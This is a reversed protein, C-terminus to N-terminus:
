AYVWVISATKKFVNYESFSVQVYAVSPKCFSAAWTWGCVTLAFVDVLEYKAWELAFYNLVVRNHM